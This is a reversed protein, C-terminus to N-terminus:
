FLSTFEHLGAVPCVDHGSRSVAERIARGSVVLAIPEYGVVPRFESGFLQERRHHRRIHRGIRSIAEYQRWLTTTEM